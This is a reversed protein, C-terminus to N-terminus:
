EKIKITDNWGQLGGTHIALIKTGKEFHGQEILDLLGFMMKSTYVPDLLISAGQKFQEIFSMLERTIKGYGGFHYELSLEWNQNDGVFKRIDEKLFDGKLAPFGIVQQNKNTSNILGAITGGTGVACAIVDFVADDPKLIEQCGTVALTNTGGEPIIYADSYKEKLEELYEEKNRERYAARSVFEFRMGDKYAKLLTPNSEFVEKLEEGRIIGITQMGSLRGAAATAAIHNSYAGGFTVIKSYGLQKAKQFNYKLKRFKNGSIESHLLDERKVYLEVEHPLRLAVKQNPIFPEEFM